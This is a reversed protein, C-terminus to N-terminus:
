PLELLYGCVINKHLFFYLQGMIIMLYEEKVFGRYLVHMVLYSFLNLAWPTISPM